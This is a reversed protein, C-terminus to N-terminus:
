FQWGPPGPQSHPPAQSSWAQMVGPQSVAAAQGHALYQQQTQQAQQQQQQQQAAALSPSHASAHPPSHAAPGPQYMQRAASAYGAAPNVQGPVGGYAMHVGSAHHQQVQSAHIGAQHQAVAHQQQQQVHHGYHLPAQSLPSSQAQAQTWMQPAYGYTPAYASAHGLPAPARQHLQMGPLQQPAPRTPSPSIMSLGHPMAQPSYGQQLLQHQSQAHHPHVSQQGLVSGTMHPAHAQTTSAGDQSAQSQSTSPEHQRHWLDEMFRSRGQRQQSLSQNFEAAQISQAILESPAVPATRDQYAASPLEHRPRQISSYDALNEPAAVEVAPEKPDDVYVVQHQPLRAGLGDGPDKLKPVGPRKQDGHDDETFGQKRAKSEWYDDRVRRGHAILRSGFQRFMSRATVIAIQRSRYSSPLIQQQILENKEEQSAIIKFLSKNKNFLLYSDRYSLVKACETALMFLRDGRHQLFFTAVKYRRGGLPAGNAAVKQEGAEDTERPIYEDGMDNLENSTHDRVTPLAKIVTSKTPTTKTPSAQSPSAQAIPAVPQPTQAPNPTAPHFSHASPSDGSVAKPPRGRKRPKSEDARTLGRLRHTPARSSIQWTGDDVDAGTQDYRLDPSRSRKVGRPSPSPM